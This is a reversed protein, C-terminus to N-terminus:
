PPPNVHERNNTGHVQLSIAPLGTVPDPSMTPRMHTPVGFAKHYWSKSKELTCIGRLIRSIMDEVSRVLMFDAYLVRYKARRSSELVLSTKGVRRDGNV